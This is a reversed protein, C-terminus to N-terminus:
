FIGNARQLERVYRTIQAVEAATADPQPPMSGFAWHHAQVGRRVALTFSVDAHHGPRYTSHVLPPGTVSGRADAGHCQACKRDFVQKGSLAEASLEPVKVQVTSPGREWVALFALAGVLVAAVVGVTLGRRLRKRTRPRM